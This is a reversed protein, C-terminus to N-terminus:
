KDLIIFDVVREDPLNGSNLSKNEFIKKPTSKEKTNLNYSIYYYQFDRSM